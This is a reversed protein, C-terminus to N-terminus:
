RRSAWHQYNHIESMEDACASSFIWPMPGGNHKYRNFFRRRDILNKELEEQAQKIQEKRWKRLDTDATRPRLVLERKGIM